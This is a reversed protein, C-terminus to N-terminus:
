VCPADLATEFMALVNRAPTGAQIAHSPGLIYGGDRGLVRIRELTEARVEEESGFPLTKQVSIGGEFCLHEGYERKLVDPDMGEADFQLAQLIDIGMDILGPVAAMVAGDSHYISKVGYRHITENLRAHHPKINKEWTEPSMLPGKQTGIDDACFILDIAGDAAQLIKEHYEVQFDTVKEFIFHLLEPDLVLDMLTQEFGRMYWSAEFIRGWGSIICREGDAQIRAIRDPLVAYDFWDSTPWPHRRLDDISTASALPHHEIEDDYAGGEFGVRKRRVGWHDTKPARPPGIYSPFVASVDLVRRLYEGVGIGREQRLLQELEGLTPQHIGSCILSIPTRDTARHELALRVRERSSLQSRDTGVAVAV